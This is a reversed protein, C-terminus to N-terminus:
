AADARDTIRYEKGRALRRAIELAEDDFLYVTVKGANMVTYPLFGGARWRDVTDKSRRVKDAVQRATMYGDPIRITNGRRTTM